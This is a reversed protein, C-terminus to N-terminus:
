AEDIGEVEVGQKALAARVAERGDFSNAETFEDLAKEADESAKALAAYLDAVEPTIYLNAYGSYKQETGKEEKWKVLLNRNSAHIGTITGARLKGNEWRVFPISTKVNSNSVRKALASKLGALTYARVEFGDFNACFRGDREDVSVDFKKGKVEIETLDM